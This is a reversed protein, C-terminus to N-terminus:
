EIAVNLYAELSEDYRAVVRLSCFVCETHTTIEPTTFSMTHKLVLSDPDVSALTESTYASGLVFFDLSSLDIPAARTEAVYNACSCSFIGVNCPRREGEKKFKIFVYLSAGISDDCSVSGGVKM